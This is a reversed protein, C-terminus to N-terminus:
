NIPAVHIGELLIDNNSTAEGTVKVNIAATGSEAATGVNTYATALGNETISVVFKQASSSTAYVVADIYWEGAVSTAASYTGIVTAGLYLKITKTNANNATTGWAKITQGKGAANMQGNAIIVTRLDDEGTGVNGAAVINYTTPNEIANTLKSIVASSGTTVTTTAPSINGVAYGTANADTFGIFTTAHTTNGDQILINNNVRANLVNMGRVVRGATSLYGSTRTIIKNNSFEIAKRQTSFGVYGALEVPDIFINDRVYSYDGQLNVATTFNVIKCNTMGSGNGGSGVTYFATHDADEPSGTEPNTRICRLTSGIIHLSDALVDATGGSNSIGIKYGSADVYGGIFQLTGAGNNSWDLCNLNKEGAGTSGSDAAFDSSKRVDVGYVKWRGSHFKMCRRTNGNYRLRPNIIVGGDINDINCQFLDLEEADSGVADFDLDKIYAYGTQTSASGNGLSLFRIAGPAEGFVGNGLALGKRAKYKDIYTDKPNDLLIGSGLITATADLNGFDHVYSNVLYVDSDDFRFPVFVKQDGDLHMNQTTVNCSTGHFMYDDLSGSAILKCEDWNPHFFMGFTKSAPDIKFNILYTGAPIYFFEEQDIYHEIVIADIEQTLATALPYDAQAAALGPAGSGYFESLPHSTGDGIAGTTKGNKEKINLLLGNLLTTQDASLGGSSTGGFLAM